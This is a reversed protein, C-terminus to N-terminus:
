RGTDQRQFDQVTTNWMPNAGEGKFQNSNPVADVGTKNMGSDQSGFTNTSLVKVRRELRSPVHLLAKISLCLHM